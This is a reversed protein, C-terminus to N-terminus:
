EEKLGSVVIKKIEGAADEDTVNLVPCYVLKGSRDVVFLFNHAYDSGRTVAWDAIHSRFSPAFGLNRPPSPIYIFGVDEKLKEPFSGAVALLGLPSHRRVTQTPDEMYSVVEGVVDSYRGGVMVVSYKKGKVVEELVVEPINPCYEVGRRGMFDTARSIQRREEAIKAKEEDTMGPYTDELHSIEELTPLNHPVLIVNDNGADWEELAETVRGSTLERVFHLETTNGAYVNKGYDTFGGYDGSIYLPVCGESLGAVGKWYEEAREAYAEDFPDERDLRDLQNAIEDFASNEKMMERGYETTRERIDAFINRGDWPTLASRDYELMFGFNRPESCDAASFVFHRTEGDLKFAKKGFCAMGELIAFSDPGIEYPVKLDRFDDETLVLPEPLRVKRLDFVDELLVNSQLFRGYVYVEDLPLTESPNFGGATIPSQSIPQTEAVLQSTPQSDAAQGSYDPRSVNQSLAGAVLGALTLGAAIRRLVGKGM